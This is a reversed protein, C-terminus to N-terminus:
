LAVFESVELEFRLSARDAFIKEECGGGPCPLRGDARYSSINPLPLLSSVGFLLDGLDRQSQDVPKAFEQEVTRQIHQNLPVEAVRELREVGRM